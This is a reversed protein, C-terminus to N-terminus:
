WVARRQGVLLVLAAAGYALLVLGAVGVVFLMLAAPMVPWAGLGFGTLVPTPVGTWIAWGLTLAGWVGVAAWLLGFWLRVARMRVGRRMAAMQRALDHQIAVLAPVLLLVIVTGFGLGYILTIVTPKLFQAQRSTEYLMPMMGLVTTLTTLIVPRLRDAAGDIISPILGRLAAREDITRILVISDNIIIGTMGLLGVVTFMSLAMDHAMHGYVVGVLGFPVISMVLLPRTWSGFVWALVLYIGLLCLILGNAAESLFRDEEEALGTLVWEVGHRAALQPLIEAELAQQVEAADAPDDSTIDGSVSIVRVGNVRNVTRFGLRSEVTVIDALPVYVGEGTRVQTRDLFDATLEGEPLEVRIAASRTGLPYTAAEIGGLRNRLVQGLGEITVGLAQGRPTLDLILEERDYALNDQVALVQPYRLLQAQLDLSAAKLADTGLGSLEVSVADGGSGTRQGRFVLVEILPHREVRERLERAFAFSSYPRLDPDILTITIGGLLEAEKAEVGSLGRGTNGGVEALVYEVPNTGHEAEYEAALVETARQLERMMALTDSRDAGNVMAFNATIVSREPGDFFRWNVDGRVFAAAQVALLLVLGAVVAYRAAIVGAMLPKFLRERVWVFGRNVQRSPWDYWRERVQASLAHAMHNPLVLFCEVLSAVLVAIVTLPIDRVIAGFWGGVVTLGLFAIITTLSAAFVPMAMRNAAREAAQFPNEGLHRVRHDAHEAVVIADDVVIGLTIILGFLSILNLTLGGAYMLAVAALLAAPIGAAVWLATRMNLFLFLLCVVLGLGALANNLLTSLRASIAEARTRILEVTVGPPLTAMMQAAVEEVQRQVAISDGGEPRDVRISIAPDEGVFYVRERDPAERIVRAVDGIRLKGGGPESRLVIGAIQEPGRKATGTRVRAGGNSVNGAPDTDVEAAIAAAIEALSIDNALLQTSPVEVTIQPDAYGRIQTRTVGVDYLRRLFEDGYQGLQEPTVAGSIIVDTVRDPRQNRQVLPDDADPPLESLGDLVDQVEDMARAMDWGPEFELSVAGLGPRANATSRVVGEVQMLAPGMAQVIAEDVDDSGAQDWRITVDIEERPVDPFFQARLNPITFLGAAIMAIFVLNALTRHRTFYSLVGGAGPQTPRVM